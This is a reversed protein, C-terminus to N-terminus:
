HFRMDSRKRLTNGNGNRNVVVFDAGSENKVDEDSSDEDSCDAGSEDEVDKFEGEIEEDSYNVDKLKINNSFFGSQACVISSENSSQSMSSSTSEISSENSSQSMSSSTSEISSVSSSQSMSSSASELPFVGVLGDNIWARLEADGECEPLDDAAPVFYLNQYSMAANILGSIVMMVRSASNQYALLDYYSHATLDHGMQDFASFIFASRMARMSTEYRNADHDVCSAVAADLVGSVVTRVAVREFNELIIQTVATGHSVFGDLFLKVGTNILCSAFLVATKKIATVRAQPQIVCGELGSANLCQQWKSHIKEQWAAVEFDNKMKNKFLFYSLLLISHEIHGRIEERYKELDASEVEHKDSDYPGRWFSIQNLIANAYNKFSSLQSQLDKEPNNIASNCEKQCSLLHASITPKLRMKSM